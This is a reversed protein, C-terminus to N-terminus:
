AAIKEDQLLDESPLLSPPAQKSIHAQVAQTLYDLVNRQQLRCCTRATMMREVYRNGRESQTGYSIKRWLVYNRITQEAINNTPEVGKETVFTWLATKHKLIERCTGETKSHGCQTGEKLTEEIGQQIRKMARIFQSRKLRGDRLRWWLRFMRKSYGLLQEGVRGSQGSRESIKLFDRLLHAWCFQRKDDDIWTYASYRDSVLIGYFSQGLLDKASAQSRSRRILFIAVLLAVGVWMWARNGQQKHGTEDAHKVPAKQVYDLVEECPKELAESVTQEAKSVTGLSIELQYHDAFVQKTARRSLHYDGTLSAITAQTRIGLMGSPVGEPLDGFHHKDCCSCRGFVQQYETVIPKVIPLEHVQHCKKKEPEAHIKGGCECQPSPLCIVVDDVQETPLLHRGNGKHGLQAGQKRTTKKKSKPYRRQKKKKAAYPDASPPKSSNQSNTNLKETANELAQNTNNQIDKLHSIEKWLVEIVQHCEDLSKPKPPCQTFDFKM